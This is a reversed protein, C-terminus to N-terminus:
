SIGLDFLTSSNVEVRNKAESTVFCAITTTSFRGPFATNGSYVFGPEMYYGAYALIQVKQGQMDLVRLNSSVHTDM